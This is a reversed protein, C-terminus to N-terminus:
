LGIIDCKTLIDKIKVIFKDTSVISENPFEPILYKDDIKLCTHNIKAFKMEKLSLAYIFYSDKNCMMTQWQNVSLQFNMNKLSSKTAKVEIFIKKFNSSINMSSEIDYGVEPIHGKYLVEFPSKKNKKTEYELILREGERGTQLKDKKNIDYYDICVEDWWLINEFDGNVLKAKSLINYINLPFYSFHGTKAFRLSNPKSIIFYDKLLDRLYDPSQKFIIEEGRDTLNLINNTDSIWNMSLAMSLENKFKSKQITNKMKDNQFIENLLKFTTNFFHETIFNEHM